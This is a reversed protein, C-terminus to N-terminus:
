LCPCPSPPSAQQRVHVAVGPRIRRAQPVWWDWRPPSPRRPWSSGHGAAGPRGGAYNVPLLNLAFLGTVLAVAGLVGPFVAGPTMLEFVIGYVGLLMLLYAINPNTIVGLFRTRWDPTMAVVAADRVLLTVPRDNLKVTRGDAQALLSDMDPAIIEVVKEQLAEQAAISAGERM